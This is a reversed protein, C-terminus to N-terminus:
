AVSPAPILTQRKMEVTRGIREQLLAVIDSPRVTLLDISFEVTETPASSAFPARGHEPRSPDARNVRVVVDHYVGFPGWQRRAHIDGISAWGITCGVRSGGLGAPGIVVAPRRRFLAALYCALPLSFLVTLFIAMGVSGAAFARWLVLVTMLGLFIAASALLKRNGYISLPENM